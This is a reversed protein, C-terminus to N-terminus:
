KCGTHLRSYSGVIYQSNTFCFDGGMFRIQKIANLRSKRSRYFGKLARLNSSKLHRQFSQSELANLKQRILNLFWM